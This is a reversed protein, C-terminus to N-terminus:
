TKVQQRWTSLLQETALSPESLTSNKINPEASNINDSEALVDSNSYTPATSTPLTSSVDPSLADSELVSLPTPLFAQTQA